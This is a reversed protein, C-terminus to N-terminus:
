GKYTGKDIGDVLSHSGVTRALVHRGKVPRPEGKTHRGDQDGVGDTPRAEFAGAEAGIGQRGQRPPKAVGLDRPLVQQASTDPHEEGGIADRAATEDNVLGLLLPGFNCRGQGMHVFQAIFLAAPRDPPLAQDKEHQDRRCDCDGQPKGELYTSMIKKVSEAGDGTFDLTPPVVIFRNVSESDSRRARAFCIWSVFSTLTHLRAWAKRQNDSPTETRSM